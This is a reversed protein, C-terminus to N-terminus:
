KVPKRFKLIFQDTKGRISPDFVIATRPDAANVLVDSAGVFEFGAATVEKKVAEPDIRHLTKTHQLASGAPASHDLVVYLGGPKLSDLVIKNFGVVDVPFNHLDHYNQATFVLDVQVPTVLRTLPAVIVSVNTYNPDAAIAKVRAALDPMDAPANAPREPVLAYVHGEPGVAKSFIRTFYGGGPLLEAVQSAPKVGLFELTEVPKRNADRQRDADPRNSDAVAASLASSDSHTRPASPASAAGPTSPEHMCATLMLSAALSALIFSHRLM